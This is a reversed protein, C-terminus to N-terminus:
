LSVRSRTGIIQKPCSQYISALVLKPLFPSTIGQLNSDMILSLYPLLRLCFTFCFGPFFHNARNVKKYDLVVLGPPTVMTYPSTSTRLDLERVPEQSTLLPARSGIAPLFPLHSKRTGLTFPAESSPTPTKETLSQFLFCAAIM